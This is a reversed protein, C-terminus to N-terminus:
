KRIHKELMMRRVVSGYVNGDRDVGVGEAGSHDDTTSEIDEIFYKVSGDKASGVRIGKKWGPEDPGWSESDAVYITDDRTITIGSPRGFQTWEDLFTGNQDFIQIRNNSRDGVFLRGRSDLAVTHPANFEGPGSGTKGWAKIFTGDKSWKSVRNVPGGITHGETIFIDGNPATVIDTPQNLRKQSGDGEVGATGITMLLTGDADYKFAQHGKGDKGQADTVWVHGQADVHFGHPFVYTGVGWSKLVQGAPNFKFIPPESRGACSNEFCRHVVYINGDPGPEAGIVAGWKMGAPLKAWNADRSYPNPLANIPTASKWKPENTAAATRAPQAAGYTKSFSNRANTVTFSGDPHASVKFWYAAGNHSPPPPAGPGPAPPPAAAIPMTPAQDDVTNAIFLGPTTYEQGSLVSFHMQWLDELGPASYLIKMTEPQGGKRTGNNLIAVRSHLADVLVEANSISLGHHSVVFLDVTGIPNNPCMLEFEKNWTLDGLQVVRFKGFTIVSGVSQANESPDAPQPVFSRCYPNPAGGGPLPTKITAGGSTVIRWDLGAVPITDGPKAVTHTAKALLSPYATQLFATSAPQPEVTTGHDIYHRIPIRSALETMGGFHDGHWHTTILHDIRSLGADKVAAMIREPDRAGAAGGNGTDILVSEGSPAVYLTANGGEVDVVYIDLTTRTTRTQAAALAVTLAVASLALPARM